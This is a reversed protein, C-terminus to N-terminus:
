RNGSRWGHTEQNKLADFPISLSAQSQRRPRLGRRLKLAALCALAAGFWVIWSEFNDM